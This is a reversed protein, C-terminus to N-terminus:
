VRRPSVGHDPSSITQVISFSNRLLKPRINPTRLQSVRKNHVDSSNMRKTM